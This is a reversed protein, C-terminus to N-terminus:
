EGWGLHHSRLEAAAEKAREPQGALDMYAQVPLVYNVGVAERVGYFVGNDNPVVVWVNEGEEVPRLGVAEPDLLPENVFLTTLRFDAHQSIQWAAALGTAAHDIGASRMRGALAALVEPGTRGIAHFKAISHKSFDYAQAWADLMTAPSRPKLRGDEPHSVILEDEVLRGVVKSVYGGSLGTEAVLEHQLWSREHAALMVRAIRSARPSFASSPRGHAAFRNPKGDILIRIGPGIIDANGSLDMWSTHRTSIYKKAKPGMYPVVLLPMADPLTHLVVALNRIAHDVHAIDDVGKFEVVFKQPGAQFAYDPQVPQGSLPVAVVEPVGLWAGLFERITREAINASSPM